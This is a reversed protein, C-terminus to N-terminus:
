PQPDTRLIAYRVGDRWAGDRFAVQRMVGERTLGLKELARQEAVNDVETDAELRHVQSYAFLYRILLRQAETGVGKGRHGPHLGIGFSFHHTIRTAIVKSWAVFGLREDGSVVLLVSREDDLLGTEQWLRSWRRGDAFGHWGFEGAVLPDSFFPELFPLDDERVPRLRLSTLDM